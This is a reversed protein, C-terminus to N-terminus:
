GNRYRKDRSTLRESASGVVVISVTDSNVRRLSVPLQLHLVHGLDAYTAALVPNSGAIRRDFNMLAGSRGM